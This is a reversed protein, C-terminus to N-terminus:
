LLRTAVVTQIGVIMVMPICYMLGKRLINGESGPIGILTTGLLVKAPTVASGLSGGISQSSAVVVINAGIVRATEVQLAGFMVNSNTNSGTMFAGLLGIFPSIMPFISGSGLALGGAIVGIMGSHQMVLTMAVMFVVAITSSSSQQYTKRVASRVMGGFSGISSRFLPLTFLAAMVILTAPHTFLELAAYQDVSSVEWGLSTVTGPYDVGWSFTALYDKIWPIQVLTTLGVVLYYPSFARHFSINPEVAEQPTPVENTSAGPASSGHSIGRIWIWMVACGFLGAVTSALQPAGVVTVGWSVFAMASGVAVIIGSAKMMADKGGVIVAVAFGTMLIPLIFMVAMTPGLVSQEIGTVLQISYYSSGLSGFTVAWSHGILAAVTAPIPAVGAIVLLPVVVAVPVGFGTVGQIFGSFCWGLLLGHLMKDSTTKLLHQGMAKMAGAHNVINYLFVSAWIIALVFVSLSIGKLSAIVILSSDAGFWVIAILLCLFYSAIAARPVSVKGTLMLVLLLFLPIAALIWNTLTLNIFSEIDMGTGVIAKFDRCNEERRAKRRKAVGQRGCATSNTKRHGCAANM